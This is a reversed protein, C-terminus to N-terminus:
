KKIIRHYECFSKVREDVLLPIHIQHIKPDAGTNGEIIVVEDKEDIAVDWAIIRHFSFKKALLLITKDIEPWKVNIFVKSQM